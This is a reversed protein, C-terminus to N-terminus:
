SRKGTKAAKKPQAQTDPIGTLVLLLAGAPVMLALLHKM